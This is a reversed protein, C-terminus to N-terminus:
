LKWVKEMLYGKFNQSFYSTIRPDLRAGNRLYLGIWIQFIVRLKACLALGRGERKGSRTGSNRFHIIRAYRLDGAGTLYTSLSVSRIPVSKHSGTLSEQNHALKTGNGFYIAFDTTYM